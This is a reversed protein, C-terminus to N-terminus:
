DVVTQVCAGTLLFVVTWNYMGAPSTIFLHHLSCVVETMSAVIGFAQYHPTRSVKNSLKKLSCVFSNDVNLIRVVSSQNTLEGELWYFVCSRNLHVLSCKIWILKYM